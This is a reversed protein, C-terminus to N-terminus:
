LDFILRRDRCSPCSGCEPANKRLCSYTLNLPIRKLKAYKVIDGKTFEIFPAEVRVSGAFYGDLIRQVDALFSPTSDYYPSGRHIGLAIRAPAPDLSAAAVVFLTNRMMVENGVCAMKFGLPVTDLESNFKRSIRTIAELESAAAPQGYQFHICRVQCNQHLYFGLLVTSDIGGSALLAVSKM